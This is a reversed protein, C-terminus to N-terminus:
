MRDVAKKALTEAWERMPVGTMVLVRGGKRAILERRDDVWLAEDGIGSVPLGGPLRKYGAMTEDAKSLYLALIIGGGTKAEVFTCRPVGPERVDMPGVVYEIRMLSEIEQRKLLECPNDTRPARHCNALVFAALVWRARKMRFSSVPM